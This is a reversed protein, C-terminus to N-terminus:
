LHSLSQVSSDHVAKVIDYVCKGQPEPPLSDAQLAPSRPEIGPNPHDGPSPFAMNQSSSNWPSYQGSPRWSASTISGSESESIM